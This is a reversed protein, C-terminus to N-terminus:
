NGWKANKKPSLIRAVACWFLLEVMKDQRRHVIVACCEEWVGCSLNSTSPKAAKARQQQPNHALCAYGWTMQFYSKTKLKETEGDKTQDLVSRSGWLETIYNLLLDSSIWGRRMSPLIGHPKIRKRRPGAQRPKYTKPPRLFFFLGETHWFGLILGDKPM